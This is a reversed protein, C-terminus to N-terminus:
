ERAWQSSIPDSILANNSHNWTLGKKKKKKKLIGNSRIKAFHSWMAWLKVAFKSCASLFTGLYHKFRMLLLAACTCWGLALTQHWGVVARDTCHISSWLHMIHHTGRRQNRPWTSLAILHLALPHVRWLLIFVSRCPSNLAVSNWLIQFLAASISISQLRYSSSSFNDTQKVPHPGRYFLPFLPTSPPPLLISKTPLHPLRILPFLDVGAEKRPWHTASGM